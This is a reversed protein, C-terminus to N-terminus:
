TSMKQTYFLKSISKSHVLDKLQKWSTAADYFLISRCHICKQVNLNLERVKLHKCILKIVHEITWFFIRMSNWMRINTSLLNSQRGLWCVLFKVSCLKFLQITEGMQMDFLFVGDIGCYFWPSKKEWITYTYSIPCYEKSYFAKVGPQM